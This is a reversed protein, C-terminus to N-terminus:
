DVIYPKWPQVRALVMNSLNRDLSRLKIRELPTFDRQQSELEAIAFRVRGEILANESVM